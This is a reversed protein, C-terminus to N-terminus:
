SSENEAYMSLLFKNALDICSNDLNQFPPYQWPAPVKGAELSKLTAIVKDTKFDSTLDQDVSPSNLADKCAVFVNITM